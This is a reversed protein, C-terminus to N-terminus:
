DAQTDWTQSAAGISLEPPPTPGWMHYKTDYTEDTSQTRTSNPRGLKSVMKPPQNVMVGDAHLESEVTEVHNLDLGQFGVVYKYINM